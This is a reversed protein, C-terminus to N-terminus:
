KRGNSDGTSSDAIKKMIKLETAIANARQQLPTQQKIIAAKHEELLGIEFVLRGLEAELKETEKSM